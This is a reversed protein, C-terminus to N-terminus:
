DTPVASTVPSTIDRHGDQRGLDYWHAGSWSGHVEGTGEQAERYGQKYADLNQEQEKTFSMRCRAM